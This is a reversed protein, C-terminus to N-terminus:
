RNTGIDVDVQRLLFHDCSLRRCRLLVVKQPTAFFFVHCNAASLIWCYVQRRAPLIWPSIFVAEGLPSAGLVFAVM